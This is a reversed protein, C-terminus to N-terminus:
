LRAMLRMVQVRQFLHDKATRFGSANLEDALQQLTKEAEGISSHRFGTTVTCVIVRKADAAFTSCTSAGAAAYILLIRLTRKMFHPPPTEPRNPERFL